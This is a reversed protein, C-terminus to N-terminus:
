RRHITRRHTTFSVDSSKVEYAEDLCAEDIGRTYMNACIYIRMCIYVFPISSASCVYIYACIHVCASGVQGGAMGYGVGFINLRFLSWYCCSSMFALLLFTVAMVTVAGSSGTYAGILLGVPSHMRTSMVLESWLVVASVAFSAAGAARAGLGVARWSLRVSGMAVGVARTCSGAIWGWAGAWGGRESQVSSDLGLGPGPGQGGPRASAITPMSVLAEKGSAVDEMRRCRQCLREWRQRCVLAHTHAMKLRAHLAVLMAHEARLDDDGASDTLSGPLGGGSGSGSGSKSEGGSGSSSLAQKGGGGRSTSRFAFVFATVEAELVACCRLLALRAALNPPLTQLRQVARTVELEVDELEYRGEQYVQEVSNAAVYARRLEGEYDHLQFLRAPLGVLGHGMFFTLLLVGYTNGLAM